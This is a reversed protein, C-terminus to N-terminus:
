ILVIEDKESEEFKIESIIDRLIFQSIEMGVLKPLVSTAGFPISNEIKAWNDSITNYVLGFFSYIQLKELSDVTIKDLVKDSFDKKKNSNQVIVLIKSSDVGSNILDVFKEILLDTKKSSVSGQALM